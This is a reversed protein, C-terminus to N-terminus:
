CFQFITDLFKFVAIITCPLFMNSSTRTKFALKSGMLTQPIFRATPRNNPSLAIITIFPRPTIRVLWFEKGRGETMLSWCITWRGRGCTFNVRRSIKRLSLKVQWYQPLLFEFRVISWTTGLCRPPRCEHCFITVAHAVQLWRLPPRGRLSAFMFSLRIGFAGGLEACYM